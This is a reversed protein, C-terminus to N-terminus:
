LTATLLDAPALIRAGVGLDLLHKDGSVLVASQAHALAIPYDETAPTCGEVGDL